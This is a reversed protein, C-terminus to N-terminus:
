NTADAKFNLSPEEIPPEEIVPINETTQDIGEVVPNEEVVPPKEVV